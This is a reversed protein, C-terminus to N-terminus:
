SLQLLCRRISVQTCPPPPGRQLFPFCSPSIFNFHTTGFAYSPLILFYFIFRRGTYSISLICILVNFILNLPSFISLHCLSQNLTMAVHLAGFENCGIQM